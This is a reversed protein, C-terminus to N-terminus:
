RAQVEQAQAGLILTHWGSSLDLTQQHTGGNLDRWGIDAKVPQAGAAGLGFFVDFSRKGSHGGGGDLQSVQVRGDATTIRVQAGYAPSGPQSGAGAAPHSLRLGLFDDQARRDNRYFEPPGWQRAVAFEQSGDGDVDAVAIGRSPTTDTFGLRAALNVYRDVGKERVWFAFPESGAIDDGPQAKPWMAPNQLLLDNAAALEQLWNFRNITGAVFGSAQVIQPTGSNDFDAAKADWGWGTWAINRKAAENRFPAAGEDLDKRAAAADAATNKWLFNSEELGWSTTINSVFGDFRGTGELDAFDIGMSKFSDHGVVLSKPDLPGRRGEVLKFRIQGPTSVNHLFRDRGFDNSVYLEPLLDGDLDASAAALTWGTSYAPPIAPQEEFAVSDATASRWRLIHAGGANTASSMSDNMSVNPQGNPDLVKTEPFYNFVGVDPHGDGDFDAVAVANTNWLAGHYRGDTTPAQPVLETARFGANSLPAGDGKNLFLLPTRGWYYVLLDNWGDQNFDGPVCGMPSIWPNMPLPAPDLVFPRYRSAGGPAPTVVAKDTRTDVLCVDDPRGGRDLDNIAIAAGVSSIWSQINQYAPNVQRVTQTPLGPPLELPLKTFSFASALSDRTSASASPLRAAVFLALVLLLVFAAPVLQRLRGASRIPM